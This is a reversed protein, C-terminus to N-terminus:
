LNLPLNIFGQRLKLLHYGAMEDIQSPITVLEGNKVAKLSLSDIAANEIKALDIAKLYVIRGDDPSLAAHVPLMASILVLLVGPILKQINM